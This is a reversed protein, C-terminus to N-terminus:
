GAACGRIEVAKRSGLVTIVIDSRQIAVPSGDGTMMEGVAQLTRGQRSTKTESMWIGRGPEIIVVEEGGTDPLSLTAEIRMGDSTPSLACTAARVDAERGSYPLSALAAAIAPTPRTNADDIVARLEMRHPVCIDSCVGIDLTTEVHLPGDGRPTLTIPLVVDGEYGITRMGATLFVGPKPWHLGVTALNRSGSWDFQPPIGADGPTRWYTKWGPALTLRVAAMRSGDAQQWGPLIEGKVPMEFSDGAQVPRALTATVALALLLAKKM